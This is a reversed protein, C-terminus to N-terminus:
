PKEEGGSCPPAVGGRASVMRREHQRAPLRMPQQRTREAIESALAGPAPVSTGTRQPGPRRQPREPGGGQRRPKTIGSRCDPRTRVSPPCGPRRGCRFARMSPSSPPVPHRWGEGRLPSQRRLAPAPARAVRALGSPRDEGPAVCWDHQDVAAKSRQGVPQHNTDQFAMRAGQQGM